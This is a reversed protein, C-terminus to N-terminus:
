ELDKKLTCPIATFLFIYFNNASEDNSAINDYGNLEVIEAEVVDTSHLPAGVDRDIVIFFELALYYLLYIVSACHCQKALGDTHDWATTM